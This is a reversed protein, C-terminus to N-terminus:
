RLGEVPSVARDSSRRTVAATPGSVPVRGGPGLLYRDPQLEVAGAVRSPGAVLRRGDRDRPLDTVGSGDLRMARLDRGDRGTEAVVTAAGGAGRVLVAQGVDPLLPVQDGTTVDVAVIACPLGGCAEHLVLRDGALGILDGHDPDAILRAAGTVPDVVRTRCAIAGCSQVALRRGDVDWTFETTWTPGFRADTPIPPLLREAPRPGALPRRFIGLDARTIRDVRMEIVMRRDTSLTARRIVATSTGVTRACGRVPDILRLMSRRGDDSGVLIWGDFPGAAFSEPPLDLLRPRSVGPGAVALRQGVLRGESLQGDLRWWTGTTATRAPLAAPCPPPDWVRDPAGLTTTAIVAAAGLAALGPGIRRVWRSEVM